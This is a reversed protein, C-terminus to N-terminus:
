LEDARRPDQAVGIDRSDSGGRGSVKQCFIGMKMKEMALAADVLWTRQDIVLELYM